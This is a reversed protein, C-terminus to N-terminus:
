GTLMQRAIDEFTDEVPDHAPSSAMIEVRPANAHHGSYDVPEAEIEPLAMRRPARPM